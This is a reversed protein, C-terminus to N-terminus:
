GTGNRVFGFIEDALRARDLEGGPRFWREVANLISLIFIAGLKPDVTPHFVGKRSGM